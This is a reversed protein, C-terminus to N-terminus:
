PLREALLREATDIDSFPVREGNAVIQYPEHGKGAILVVDGPRAWSVAHDIAAM